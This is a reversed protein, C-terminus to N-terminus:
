YDINFFKKLNQKANENGLDAAKKLDKIALKDLGKKHYTIGRFYFLFSEPEASYFEMVKTYEKIAEDYLGKERYSHGRIIYYGYSAEGPEIEIAKTYDKIAENFSNKKYYATARCGYNVADKPNLKIAKTYYEIAEDIKGEGESKLGKIRLEGAFYSYDGLKAAKNFDKMALKEWGKGCKYAIGRRYYAEALKPNIEIAKNYDEIAEDYLGKRIYTKGRNIYADVYNKDIEIAETYYEITKDYISKTAERYLELAKDKSYLKENLDHMEITADIEKDCAENYAEIGKSFWQYATLNETPNIKIEEKEKEGLVIKLSNLLNFAIEDQLKFIDSINGNAEATDIVKITQVDVFRATIRLKDGMVQFSGFIMVDAGYMKGMKVATNEDVAGTYQFNIEELIKSLNERELVTIESVKVLKTTLTESFGAGIWNKEKDGTINQFPIVAINKSFVPCTFLLLFILSLLFDCRLAVAVFKTKIKIRM